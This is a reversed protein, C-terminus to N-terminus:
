KITQFLMVGRVELFACHWGWIKKFTFCRDWPHRSGHKCGFKNTWFMDPFVIKKQDFYNWLLPLSSKKGLILLHRMILYRVIESAAWTLLYVNNKCRQFKIAEFDLIPKEFQKVNFKAERIGYSSHKNIWITSFKLLDSIKFNKSEMNLYHFM